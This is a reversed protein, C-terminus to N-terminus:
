TGKAVPARFKANKLFTMAWLDSGWGNTCTRDLNSLREGRVRASLLLTYCDFTREM